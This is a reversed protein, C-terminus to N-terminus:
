GQSPNCMFCAFFTSRVAGQAYFYQGLGQRAGGLFVPAYLARIGEHFQHPKLWRSTARAKAAM